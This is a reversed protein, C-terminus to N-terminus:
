RNQESSYGLHWGRLKNLVAFLVALPHQIIWVGSVADESQINLVISDLKSARSHVFCQVLHRAYVIKHWDERLSVLFRLNPTVKGLACLVSHCLCSKFEFGMSKGHGYASMVSIWRARHEDRLLLISCSKRGPSWKRSTWSSIFYSVKGAEKVM